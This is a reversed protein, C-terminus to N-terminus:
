PRHRDPASILLMRDWEPEISSVAALYALAIGAAGELVGPETLWNGRRYVSYGAVGRGVRRMALSRKFWSVAAAKLWPEGTAQYLRNFLHAAGASGHCLGCDLVGSRAFPRAAASRAIKMAEAEWRPRRACRAAVLLAASIGLDGYCWAIRAPVPTIGPGNCVPFVSEAGDAFKQALLWAVASELLPRARAAARTLAKRAVPDLVVASVNKVPAKPRKRKTGDERGTPNLACVQGLFAIVAPVGHAVGLNYQGGTGGTPSLLLTGPTFWTMGTPTDEAAGELRDVVRAVIRAASRSPLRELGYVGLGVLGSVLDYSGEWPKRGVCALILEDAPSAAEDDEALVGGRLHNASWFIGSLGGYFSPGVPRLSVADIARQLFALSTEASERGIEAADLYAFLVAFGADGCALSPDEPRGPAPAAKRKRSAQKPRVASSEGCSVPMKCLASAIARISTLAEARLRGSLIPNWGASKAKVSM